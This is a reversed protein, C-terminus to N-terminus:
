GRRWLALMWRIDAPAVFHLTGRLPWTRVVTRDAIAREITEETATEMRLGLAWLAGLYDQAQVAGMWAVVEAPRKFGPGSIRQSRLRRDAINSKNTRPM